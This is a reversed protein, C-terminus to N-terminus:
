PKFGIMLSVCGSKDFNDKTQSPPTIVEITVVQTNDMKLDWFKAESSKGSFIVKNKGNKVRVLVDGLEKQSCMLIRYEMDQYFTMVLRARDESLLTSNFVKGSSIYPKLLPNCKAKSFTNCQGSVLAPALLLFFVFISKFKNKIM